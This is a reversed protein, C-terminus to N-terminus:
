YCFNADQDDEKMEEEPGYLYDHVATYLKEGLLDEHCTPFCSLRDWMGKIMEYETM